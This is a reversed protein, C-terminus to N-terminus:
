SQEGGRARQDLEVQNIAVNETYTRTLQTGESHIKGNRETQLAGRQDRLERSFEPAGVSWHTGYARTHRSADLKM